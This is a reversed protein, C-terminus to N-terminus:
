PQSQRERLQTLEQELAEQVASRVWHGMEARLAQYLHQTHAQLVDVLADALREQLASDLRSMVRTQLDQAIQSWDPEANATTAQPLAHAEVAQVQPKSLDDVVEEVVEELLVPIEVAPPVPSPLAHAAQVSDPAAPSAVEEAVVDTLTPVFRPPQRM